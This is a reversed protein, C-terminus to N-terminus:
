IKAVQLFLYAMLISCPETINVFLDELVNKCHAMGFQCILIGLNLFGHVRTHMTELM